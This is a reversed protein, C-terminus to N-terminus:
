WEGADRGVGAAVVAEGTTAAIHLIRVYHADAREGHFGRLADYVQVHAVAKSAVFLALRRNIALRAMKSILAYKKGHLFSPWILGTLLTNM